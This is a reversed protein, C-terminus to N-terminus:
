GNCIEKVHTIQTFVDHSAGLLSSFGVSNNELLLMLTNFAVKRKMITYCYSAMAMIIYKKRIKKCKLAATIQNQLKHKSPVQQLNEVKVFFQEAFHLRPLIFNFIYRTQPRATTSYDILVRLYPVALSYYPPLYHLDSGTVDHCTYWYPKGATAKREVVPFRRTERLRWQTFILRSSGQWKLAKKVTQVALNSSLSSLWLFRNQSSQKKTM